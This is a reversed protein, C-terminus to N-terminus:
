LGSNRLVNLADIEENGQMTALHAAYAGGTRGAMVIATVIAAM